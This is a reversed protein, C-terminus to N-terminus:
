RHSRAARWAVAGALVAMTLAGLALMTPPLQASGGETGGTQPLGAPTTPAPTAVQAAVAAAFSGTIGCPGTLTVNATGVTAATLSVVLKGGSILGSTTLTGNNTTASFAPTGNPDGPGEQLAVAGAGGTFRFEINSAQGVVASGSGTTTDIWPAFDVTGQAGLTGPNAGDLVDEGTGTANGPHTPGTANGWWNGEANVSQTDLSALGSTTNGCLVNSNALLTGVPSTGSELMEIGSDNNQINSNRITVNGTVYDESDPVFRGEPDIGDGLNGIATVRDYLSNGSVASQFGEDDNNIATSNTVTLAGADVEFGDDTESDNATSGAITVSASGADLDFGEDYNGSAESDTITVNGTADVEIGDDDSNGNATSGTVTTTGGSELDFGESGSNDNGISGTVTVNGVTAEAQVGNSSNGNATVSAITVNGSDSTVDVGDSSTGNATVNSVAIHGSAQVDIGSSDASTVILGDITLAGPFPLTANYVATGTAPSITATGAAAAGSANVTKLTLDGASGAIASGMLSIDVSEPYTGPFIRVETPAPGANNIAAQVTTFCPVLGACSGGPDAGVPTAAQTSGSSGIAFAVLTALALIPSVWLLRSISM